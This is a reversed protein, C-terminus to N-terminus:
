YKSLYFKLKLSHVYTFLNFYLVGLLTVVIMLNLCNKLPFGHICNLHVVFWNVVIFAWIFWTTDSVYFGNIFSFFCTRWLLPHTPPCNETSTDKRKISDKVFTDKQLFYGDFYIFILGSYTLILCLVNNNISLIKDSASFTLDSVKNLLILSARPRTSM